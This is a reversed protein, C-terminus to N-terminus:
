KVVRIGVVLIGKEHPQGAVFFIEDLPATVELLPLYEKGTPKTISTHVKFRGASPVDKLTVRLTRGNPLTMEHHRDQVLPGRTQSLLKYTDYASFPPKKLQPALKEIKPDIGQGANSAHLVLVEASVAPAASASASSSASGSPAASSSSSASARAVVQRPADALSTGALLMPATACAVVTLFALSARV